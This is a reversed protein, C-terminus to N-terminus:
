KEDGALRRAMSLLLDADEKSLSMEQIEASVHQAPTYPSLGQAVGVQMREGTIIYWIDVGFERVRALFEADPIVNGSERDWYTRDPMGILAAFEKQNKKLRKREERLRDSFLSM